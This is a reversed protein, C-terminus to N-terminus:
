AAPPKGNPKENGNAPKALSALRENRRASGPAFIFGVGKLQIEPPTKVSNSGQTVTIMDRQIAITAMQRAIMERLGAAQDDITAGAEALQAQTFAIEHTVGCIDNADIISKRHARMQNCISQALRTATAARQDMSGSTSAMIAQILWTEVPDAKKRNEGIIVTM